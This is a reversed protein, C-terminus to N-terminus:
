GNTGYAIARLVQTSASIPRGGWVIEMFQTIVREDSVFGRESAKNRAWRQSATWATFFRTKM